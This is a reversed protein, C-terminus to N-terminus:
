PQWCSVKPREFLNIHHGPSKKQREERRRKVSQHSFLSMNFVARRWPLGVFFHKTQALTNLSLGGYKISSCCIAFTLWLEVGVKDFLYQAPPRFRIFPLLYLFLLFYFYLIYLYISFKRFVIWQTHYTPTCMTENAVPWEYNTAYELAENTRMTSNGWPLIKIPCQYDSNIVYESKNIPGFM